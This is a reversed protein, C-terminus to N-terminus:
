RENRGRNEAFVVILPILTLQLIVGPIGTLISTWIISVPVATSGFAYFASLIALARVLRGALQVSLVKLVSPINASRILGAFLGYSCLELAMFPVMAAGPMGSLLFSVIPALAGSLAGAFPGALLGVLIVPLHMPLFAEGLGAGFGSVAGVAHFIRPLLVAGAAAAVACLTQMKLSVRPKSSNIATTM